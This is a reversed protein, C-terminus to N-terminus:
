GRRSYVCTFLLINVVPMFSYIKQREKDYFRILNKVTFFILPLYCAIVGISFYKEKLTITDRDQDAVCFQKILNVATPM